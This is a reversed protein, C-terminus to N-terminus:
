ITEELLFSKMAKNVIVPQDQQVFHNGNSVLLIQLNNVHQQSLTLFSKSLYVDKDGWILLGPPFVEPHEDKWHILGSNARYYNIACKM